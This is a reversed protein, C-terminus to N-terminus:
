SGPAACGGAYTCDPMAPGSISLTKCNGLVAEEPRLAVESLTPKQYPKKEPTPDDASM